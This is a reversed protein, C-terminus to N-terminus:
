HVDKWYERKLFFAFVFLIALYLLAKFGLSVRQLRGPEAAYVMFNVIDGVMAKYDAPSLAGQQVLKLPPGHAEAGRGHEPQATRAQDAGAAAPNETSEGEVPPKEELAQWGQQSWLVHPMSANPLMLNNVGLPRSADVYFTRLYSYVWSAGRYRAELTLDPPAKGFWGEAQEVPMASVIHDGPKDSTFMLNARLLDEPIGLDRALRNYRLLSMSHCGSCYAMFDRAGRQLSATNSPSPDFSYPIGHSGQALASASILVGVVAMLLRKM